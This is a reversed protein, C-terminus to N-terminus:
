IMGSKSLAAFDDALIERRRARAEGSLKQILLPLEAHNDVPNYQLIYLKRLRKAVQVFKEHVPGALFAYHPRARPFKQAYREIILTIAPDAMSFGIFLFTHSLLLAEIFENYYWNFFAKKAYDTRDFIMTEPLDVTGHIKIIYDRDNKLAEWANDNIDTLLDPYRSGGSLDSWTNEILKDFNTTIIIRQNLSILAKHLESPIGVHSFEDHVLNTWEQTEISAKVLECALTYDKDAIAKKVVAKDNEDAIKMTAHMLFTAWDRIRNGQRTRASASVGSGAFLVLRRRAADDVLEKSFIM